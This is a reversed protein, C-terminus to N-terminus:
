RRKSGGSQKAAEIFFFGIIAIPIFVIYFIGKFLQFITTLAEEKKLQYERDSQTQEKEQKKREIEEIQLQLKKIQLDEKTPKKETQNEINLFYQEIENNKM